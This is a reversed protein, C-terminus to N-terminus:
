DKTPMFFVKVKRSDVIEMLTMFFIPIANLRIMLSNQFFFGSLSKWLVVKIAFVKHSVFSSQDVRVSKFLFM